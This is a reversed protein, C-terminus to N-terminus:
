KKLKRKEDDLMKLMIKRRARKPVNGFMNDWINLSSGLSVIAEAWIIFIVGCAAKVDKGIANRLFWAIEIKTDGSRM